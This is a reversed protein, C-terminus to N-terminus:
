CGDSAVEHQYLEPWPLSPHKIHSAAGSYSVQCITNRLLCYTSGNLKGRITLELNTKTSGIGDCKDLQARHHQMINLVTSPSLQRVHGFVAEFQVNGAM